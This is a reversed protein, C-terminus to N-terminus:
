LLPEVVLDVRAVVDELLALILLLLITSIALEPVVVLLHLQVLLLLDARPQQELYHQIQRVTWAEPAV